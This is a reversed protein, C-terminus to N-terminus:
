NMRKARKTPDYIIGILKNIQNRDPTFIGAHTNAITPVIHTSVDELANESKTTLKVSKVKDDSHM